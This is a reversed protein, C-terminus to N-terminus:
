RKKRGKKKTARYGHRRARKKNSKRIKVKM